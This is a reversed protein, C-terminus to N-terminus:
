FLVDEKKRKESFLRELLPVFHELAYSPYDPDFSSQDWSECFAACSDFWPHDRFKERAHQDGGTHHAYYYNQFIGHQAVIWTVQPRVYPRLIEAAFAAHNWPALDDGIDHLLAAAILEEDAGDREARTAAQLSHGLRTVLYGELSGDLKQLAALLRAPLEAAYRREHIELMRYEEQTGDAMRRFAVHQM